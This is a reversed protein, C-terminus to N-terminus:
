SQRSAWAGGKTYDITRRINGDRLRKLFFALALGFWRIRGFVIRHVAGQSFATKPNMAQGSSEEPHHRLKIAVPLITGGQKLIQHLLLVEEGGNTPPAGLGFREDFRVGRQKLWGRNVVMEMSNIGQIKKLTSWTTGHIPSPNDPYKRWPLDPRKMLWTTIAGVHELRGQRKWETLQSRLTQFGSMDLSIDDDCLVAWDARLLELANNRSISLGTEHVNVVTVSDSPLGLALPDILGTGGPCQNVIVVPAELAVLQRLLVDNKALRGHMTSAVLGLLPPSTAENGHM